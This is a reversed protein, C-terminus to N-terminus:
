PSLPTTIIKSLKVPSGGVVAVCVHCRVSPGAGRQMECAGSTNRGVQVGTGGHAGLFPVNQQDRCWSVVGGMLQQQHKSQEHLSPRLLRSM